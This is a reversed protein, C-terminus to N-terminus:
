KADLSEAMVDQAILQRRCHSCELLAIVTPEVSVGVIFTNNGCECEIMAKVGLSISIASQRPRAPM